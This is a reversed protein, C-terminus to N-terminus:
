KQNQRQAEVFRREAAAWDMPTVNLVLERIDRKEKRKKKKKEKKTLERNEAVTHNSTLLDKLTASLSRNRPGKSDNDSEGESELGMYPRIEPDPAFRVRMSHSNM